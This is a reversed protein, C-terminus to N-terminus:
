ELVSRSKEDVRSAERILTWPHSTFCSMSALTHSSSFVSLNFLGEMPHM